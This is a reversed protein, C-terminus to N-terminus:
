DPGTSDADNPKRKRAKLAEDPTPRWGTQTGPLDDSDFVAYCAEHKPLKEGESKHYMMVPHGM